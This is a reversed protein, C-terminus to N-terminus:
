AVLWVLVLLFWALPVLVRVYLPPLQSGFLATGAKQGHGPDRWDLIDLLKDWVWGSRHDQAHRSIPEVQGALLLVNTGYNLVYVPLFKWPGWGPKYPLQNLLTFGTLWLKLNRLYTLV